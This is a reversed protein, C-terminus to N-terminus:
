CNKPLVKRMEITKRCQVVFEWSEPRSCRPCESCVRNKNMMEDRMGYQNYGNACKIISATIKNKPFANRAEVDVYEANHGIKGKVCENKSEIADVKWVVEKIAGNAIRGKVKVTCKCLFNINTELAKEEVNKRLTKAEEDCEKLLHQLHM